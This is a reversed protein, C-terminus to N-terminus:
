EEILFDNYHSGTAQRGPLVAAAEREAPEVPLIM